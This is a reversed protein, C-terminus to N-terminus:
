RGAASAVTLSVFGVDEQVRLYGLLIDLALPDFEGSLFDRIALASRGERLLIRLEARMHQPIRAEAATLAERQASTLAAMAARRAFIGVGGTSNPGDGVTTDSARQEADTLTLGAPRVGWLDARLRYYTEIGDQMTAERRGIVKELASVQRAGEAADAFLVAV